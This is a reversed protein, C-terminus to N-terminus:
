RQYPHHQCRKLAKVFHQRRRRCPKRLSKAPLVIAFREGCKIEQPEEEVGCENGDGVDGARQHRARQGRICKSSQGCAPCALVKGPEVADLVLWHGCACAVAAAPSRVAVPQGCAPCPAEAPGGPEGVDFTNGCKCTVSTAM